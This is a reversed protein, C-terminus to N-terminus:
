VLIIHQLNTLSHRHLINFPVIQHTEFLNGCIFLGNFITLLYSNDIVFMMATIM